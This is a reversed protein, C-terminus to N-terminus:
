VSPTRTDDVPSLSQRLANRARHVHSMATGEPLDLTTAIERYSLELVVKMLLCARAIEDLSMLASVVNDDFAEQDLAIDGRPSLPKTASRQGAAATKHDLIVPDVSSVRSRTVRRAHNLATFRVIQGMWAAFNSSPDFTDIKKLAVMAAEQLVDEVLARDPVIAAAICWLKRAAEQYRRAFEARDLHGPSETDEPDPVNGM